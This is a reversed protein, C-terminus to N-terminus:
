LKIHGKEILYAKLADQWNRINKGGLTLLHANRLVSFQPRKAKLTLEKASIAKINAKMNLYEFIKATFEYWSSQGDNTIHYIGYSCFPLIDLISRALDLTYTTSVIEDKVINLQQGSEAKKIINEVFNSGGKGMCGATGYLGSTRIIFHKPNLYKVMQEGALKSIGYATQPDPIDTEVYPTTKTGSFVYDTSIHVLAAKLKASSVALNRAGLTNVRIADEPKDEAEDVKNYAATNIITDPAIKSLVELTQAYNTIDIDSITLPILTTENKRLDTGLQGDAGIVVIKM